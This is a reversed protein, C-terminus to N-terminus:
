LIYPKYSVWIQFYSVELYGIGSDLLIFNEIMYRLQRNVHPYGCFDLLRFNQIDLYISPPYLLFSPSISPSLPPYHFLLFPYFNPHVQRSLGTRITRDQSNDKINQEKQGTNVLRDQKAANYHKGYRPQETV